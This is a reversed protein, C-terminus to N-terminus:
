NINKWMKIYFMTKEDRRGSMLSIEGGHNEVIKQAISLGLGLGGDTSRSEDGRVFADFIKKRLEKSIGIGNDAVEIVVFKGIDRVEIRLRTGNPNYKLANEILNVIVRKFLKSDAKIFLSQEPINIELDFERELIEDYYSVIIQRILECIDIKELNLKYQSDDMKVLELLDNVLDGLRESKNYITKYYRQKQNEETVMGEYLAESFGRITTIPTKIDHSLDLLMKNKSEQLRKNEDRSVKLKDILFNITESVKVFEESGDLELKNDYNGEMITKLAKDIKQLPRKIERSTWMTFLVIAIVGIIIGLAISIKKEIRHQRIGATNMFYMIFINILIIVVLVIYRKTLSIFLKDNKKSM